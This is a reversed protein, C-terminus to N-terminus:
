RAIGTVPLAAFLNALAIARDLGPSNDEITWWASLVMQTQTWALIRDRDFGLMEAFIAIRRETVAAASPHDLLTGPNRLFAGLEYIPEGTVGKPDIARWSGDPGSLINDHHLDGHLLVPSAQSQLLEAFIREARDALRAPIPGSGGNFRARM